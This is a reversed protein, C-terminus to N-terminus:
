ILTSINESNGLLARGYVEANIEPRVGAHRSAVESDRWIRQLPNSEAFSSAGHASCLIRIAERAAEAVYGTEMRFRAREVYDLPRGSRAANDIDAAARYAHLHATEVLMAARAVALQVTPASAQTEYSTYAIGRKDAAEMVLELARAALGLQPGILIIFVVPVFASQYLAENKYPTAYDGGLLDSALLVHHDPVFVDQAVITNSGTGKMGVVFWTEKISLQRMPILAFGQDVIKGATDVVPVGVLGWDAHLCGSSWPWQGSVLFGGEVRRCQCQGAFAGAMRADPNTGWVDQQLRDSGLATIWACTTMLSFVWATSGCGKALERAVELATRFDAELGGFRRPVLIKFLGADQIARINEDAVRRDAETKAANKELLPVLAVARKVLDTGRAETRQLAPMESDGSNGSGIGSGFSMGTRQEIALSMAFIMEM